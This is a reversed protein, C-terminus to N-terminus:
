YGLTGADLVCRAEAVSAAIQQVWDTPLPRLSSIKARLLLAVAVHWALRLSNVAGGSREEYAALFTQICRTVTTPQLNELLVVYRFHALLRGVDYLPDGMRLDDWDVIGVNPGDLLIQDGFLNAHIPALQDFALKRACSRLDTVLAEISPQLAPLILQVDHM